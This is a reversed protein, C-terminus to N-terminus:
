SAIETRVLTDPGHVPMASAANGAPTTRLDYRQLIRLRRGGGPDGMLAVDTLRRPVDLLDAVLPEIEAILRFADNVDMQDTLPVHFRHAAGSPLQVVDEGAPGGPDPWAQARVSALPDIAEDIRDVVTGLGNDYEEPVLSVRGGIVAVNFRPIPCSLAGEIRQQLATELAFRSRGQALAFPARLLGHLGHRRLNRTITAPNFSLDGFSGLKRLEGQDACWGTWAVGFHALADARKPVWYVAYREFADSM